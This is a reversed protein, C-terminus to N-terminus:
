TGRPDRYAPAGPDALIERLARITAILEQYESVIKDQELGTLRHLRLDLIAQAQTPSLRYRGSELGCDPPADIPRTLAADTRELLGVM